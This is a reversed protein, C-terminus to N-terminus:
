SRKGPHSSGRSATSAVLSPPRLRNRLLAPTTCLQETSPAQLHLTKQHDTQTPLPSNVATGPPSPCPPARTTRHQRGENGRRRARAPRCRRSMAAPREASVALARRRCRRRPHTREPSGASHARAVAATRQRRSWSPAPDMGQPCRRGSPRSTHVPPSHDPCTGSRLWRPLASAAARASRPHHSPTPSRPRDARDLRRQRRRRGLWPTHGWNSLSHQRDFSRGICRRRCRKLASPSTGPRSPRNPPSM